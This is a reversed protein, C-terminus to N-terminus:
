ETEIVAYRSIKWFESPNIIAIYAKETIDNAIVEYSDRPHETVLKAKEANLPIEKTEHINIETFNKDDFDERLAITKGLWLFGGEKTILGKEKLEMYTGYALYAKNMEKEQINIVHDKQALEGRLEEVHGNLGDVETNKEDLAAVLKNISSNRVQMSDSLATIKEELAAIKMGSSKLKHNLTALKQRNKELLDRLNRVDKVIQNRRDLTIEPDNGSSGLINEKQKMEKLDEEILNFTIMWESVLSDRQELQESVEKNEKELQQKLQAMEEMNHKRFLLFGAIAVAIVLAVAVAVDWFTNRQTDTSKKTTDNKSMDKEKDPHLKKQMDQNNNKKDM